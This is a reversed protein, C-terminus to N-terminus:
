RALFYLVLIDVPSLMFQFVVQSSNYVAVRKSVLLYVGILTFFRVASSRSIYAQCGADVFEM